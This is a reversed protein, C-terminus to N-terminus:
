YGFHQRVTFRIVNNVEQGSPSLQFIYRLLVELDQTYRYGVGTTFRFRDQKFDTNDKNIDLFVEMSAPIFYSKPTIVPGGIPIQTSIQYRGKLFFSSSKSADDYIARQELRVYNEFRITGITPWFIKAGQWPRIEFYTPSENRTNNNYMLGIGGRFDILANQRYSISPRVHLRWWGEDTSRLSEFRLGVDNYFQWKGNLKHFHYYDGWIELGPGEQALIGLNAM